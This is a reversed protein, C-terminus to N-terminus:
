ALIRAILISCICAVVDITKSECSHMIILKKQKKLWPPKLANLVNQIENENRAENDCGSWTTDASLTQKNTQPVRDFVGSQAM